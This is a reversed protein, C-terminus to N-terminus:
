IAAQEGRAVRAVGKVISFERRSDDFVPQDRVSIEVDLEGGTRKRREDRRLHDVSIM